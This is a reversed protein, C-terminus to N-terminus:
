AGIPADGGHTPTPGAKKMRVAGGGAQPDDDYEEAGGGGGAGAGSGEVGGSGKDPAPTGRNEEASKDGSTPPPGGKVPLPEQDAANGSRLHPAEYPDREM